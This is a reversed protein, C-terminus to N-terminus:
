ALSFDGVACVKVPEKFKRVDWIKLTDDLSRTAVTQGNSAMLLGSQSQIVRGLFSPNSLDFV